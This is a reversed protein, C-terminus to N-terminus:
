DGPSLMAGFYERNLRAIHTVSIGKPCEAECAGTNTCAGFGLEDMAEVMRQVRARREPQGQPLLAYQSVKASVFLMASANKCAAVCAGCGICAAANFAEDAHTKAIPVANGDPANGTNVSVYGGAQMITDFASRDVVLDRIVPFPRARWPEITITEGDSFHRMHLQCTTTGAQTGHARGNIYMSCSGCIGERCDHDFAVPTEGKGSLQENLLDMMELFSAHVPVESLTYTQFGGKDAPGKQRWVKLTLGITEKGM